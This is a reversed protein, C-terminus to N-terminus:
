IMHGDTTDTDPVVEVNTGATVETKAAKLQSVNVADTDAVGEAVNEIKQNGASIGNRTFRTNVSGSASTSPYLTIGNQDVVTQGNTDTTEGIKLHGGDNLKIKNSLKVTLTNTTNEAIVGINDDTLKSEDKIGGKVNLQEGSNVTIINATETTNDGGFNLSGGASAAVKKLQAVNVADTDESGAAVNTIQRTVSGDAKGVSVAAYTSEWTETGDTYTTTETKPNFGGTSKERSAESYSGLAVVGTKTVSANNGLIFADTIGAETINSNNGVVYSSDANVVNPDGFAGSNNGNVTHGTGIAISNEGTVINRSGIATAEKGVAHSYSGM